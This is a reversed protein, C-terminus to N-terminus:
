APTGYQRGLNHVTSSYDTGQDGTMGVADRDRDFQFNRLDKEADGSKTFFSRVEQVIAKMVIKGAETETKDDSTLDKYMGEIDLPYARGYPHTKEEKQVRFAMSGRINYIRLGGFTLQRSPDEIYIYPDSESLFSKTKLGEKHLVKEVIELQRKSERTKKDVFEGFSKM